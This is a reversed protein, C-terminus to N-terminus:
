VMFHKLVEKKIYLNLISAKLTMGNKLVIINKKRGTIILQGKIYKKNGIRLDSRGDPISNCSNAILIIGLLLYNYFTEKM